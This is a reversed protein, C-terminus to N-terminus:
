SIFYGRMIPSLAFGNFHCLSRSPTEFWRRRSSKSLRKNLRPDSFVGFSRTAPRHLPFEGTIPSNGECLALLVSFIEMQHRWRVILAANIYFLIAYFSWVIHIKVLQPETWRNAEYGPIKLHPYRRTSCTIGWHSWFHINMTIQRTQHKMSIHMHIDYVVQNFVANNCSTHVNNWSEHHPLFRTVSILAGWKEFNSMYLSSLHTDFGELFKMTMQTRWLMFAVCRLAVFYHKTKKISINILYCLIPHWIHYLVYLIIHNISSCILITHDVLVLLLPENFQQLRTSRIIHLRQM